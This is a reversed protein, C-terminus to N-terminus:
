NLREIIVGSVVYFLITILKLSQFSSITTEVNDNKSDLNPGQCKIITM